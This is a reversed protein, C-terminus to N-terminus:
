WHEKSLRSVIGQGRVKEDGPVSQRYRLDFVTWEAGLIADGSSLHTKQLSSNRPTLAPDDCHPMVNHGRQRGQLSKSSASPAGGRLSSIIRYKLPTLVVFVFSLVHTHLLRLADGEWGCHCAKFGCATGQAAGGSM